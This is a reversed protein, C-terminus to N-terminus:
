EGGVRVLMSLTTVEGEAGARVGCECLMKTDILEEEGGYVQQLYAAQGMRAAVQEKVHRVSVIGCVNMRMEQGDATVVMVDFAATLQEVDWEM